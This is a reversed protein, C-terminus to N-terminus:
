HLIKEEIKAAVSNSEKKLKKKIEEVQIELKQRAEDVQARCESSVDALMKEKEQLAKKEFSNLTQRAEAQAKKLRAEIDAMIEEQRRQAAEAEQFGKKIKLRREKMVQRVPNYFIKTLLLVLVWVLLFVIIVNADISLM